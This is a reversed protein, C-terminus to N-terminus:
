GVVWRATPRSAAFTRRASPDERTFASYSFPPQSYLGAALRCLRHHVIYLPKMARMRLPALSALAIRERHAEDSAGLNSGTMTFVSTFRRLVAMNMRRRLLQLIWEADGVNRWRPDFLEGGEVVRRRFFTSCTMTSLHATWTHGLRPVLVKRHFLYRASRDVVVSDAFLVDVAPNREFLDSVARLAGPLYQEDSNLHALIDGEARRLGRNLADYMGSDKEVFLRVGPLDRVSEPTGDDSQADQIIHEYEVGQDAVSAVCLRIWDTSRYSPTVISFSVNGM